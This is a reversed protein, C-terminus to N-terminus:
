VNNNNDDKDKQSCITLFQAEFMFDKKWERSTQHVLALTPFCILITQVAKFKHYIEGLWLGLKSKGTGCAMHIQMRLQDDWHKLVQKIGAMQHPRPVKRCGPFIFQKDHHDLIEFLLNCTSTFYRFSPWSNKPNKDCM